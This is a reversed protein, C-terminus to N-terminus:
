GAVQGRRISLAASVAVAATESRLITSGLTVKVAFDLEEAVSFGGEPGIVYASQLGFKDSGRPTCLASDPYKEVFKRLDALPELKPIFACRAQMAAERAVKSLKRYESGGYLLGERRKASFDSSLIHIEEVGLETMKQVAWITRDLSPVVFGIVIRPSAPPECYVPGCLDIQWSKVRGDRQAAIKAIRWLGKGNGLTITEGGRLRRVTKLHHEDAESLKPNDLDDVIVHAEGSGALKPSRPNRGM